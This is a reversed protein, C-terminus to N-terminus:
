INKLNDILPKVIEKVMLPPVGEGIVNRVLKESAWEPINWDIPL